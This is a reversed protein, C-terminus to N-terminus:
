QQKAYYVQPVASNLKHSGSTNTGEFKYYIEAPTDLYRELNYARVTPSPRYMKYFDFVPQPIDIYKDTDNLEHDVCAECFVPTLDDKTVPKLTAPNLMPEPKDKMFAKLNLYQRPMEDEELYIKYPIKQESM